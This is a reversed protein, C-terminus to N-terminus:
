QMSCTSSHPVFHSLHQKAQVHILTNLIVLPLLLLSYTLTKTAKVEVHKCVFVHLCTLTPVLPFPIQFPFPPSPVKMACVCVSDTDM